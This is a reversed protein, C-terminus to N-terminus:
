RVDGFKKHWKELHTVLSLGKPSILDSLLWCGSGSSRQFKLTVSQPRKEAKSLVFIYSMRVSALVENNETTRFTIPKGIDGDQADTWPVAEIACINGNACQYERELASLLRPTVIDKITAPNEFNFDIHNAYFSRASEAPDDAM